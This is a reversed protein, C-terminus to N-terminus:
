WHNRLIKTGLSISAHSLSVAGKEFARWPGEQIKGLLDKLRELSKPHWAPQACGLVFPSKYVKKMATLFETNINQFRTTEVPLLHKIDASGSFIGRLYVVPASRRDFMLSSCM